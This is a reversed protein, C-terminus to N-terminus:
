YIILMGIFAQALKASEQDTSKNRRHTINVMSGMVNSTDIYDSAHMMSMNSFHKPEVDTIPTIINNRADM